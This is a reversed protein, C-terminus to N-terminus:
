RRQCSCDDYYFSLTYLSFSSTFLFIFRPAPCIEPHPDFGKGTLIATKMQPNIKRLAQVAELGGFFADVLALRVERLHEPPAALAKDSSEFGCVRYGARELIIKEAMLIGLDDEILLILFGQNEGPTASLHTQNNM